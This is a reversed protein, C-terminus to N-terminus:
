STERQGGNASIRGKSVGGSFLIPLRTEIGPIGNPIVESFPFIIGYASIVSGRCTVGLKRYNEM